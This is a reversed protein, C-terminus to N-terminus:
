VLITMQKRYYRRLAIDMLWLLIVSVAAFLLTYTSGIAPDGGSIFPFLIIPLTIVQGGGVLFTILYQSMSVLISLSAGAVMGPLIHPLVIYRFRHWKGAGLMRGQDEWQLGLTGFSVMLARIMYPMTPSLHALVVGTTTETLNLRIFTTYLGMVAVFSPVIMPAYLMGEVIRKGKFDMRALADAAPVALVLNILTVLLAIFVSTGIANWTGSNVSFVYAWARGSFSEPWIEPWRWGASFVSFILPIFPMVIVVILITTVFSHVRHMRKGM